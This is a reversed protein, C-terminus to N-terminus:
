IEDNKGDDNGDSEEKDPLVTVTIELIRREAVKTVKVLLKDYTFEDGEEAIKGLKELVWGGVSVSDAEDDDEVEFYELMKDLLTSCLVTVSGDPNPVFEEVVEDYEDWIEGVLEELIDEMTAIGTTGGYEDSIVAMHTKKAQMLKLLESISMQKAVFVTPKIISRITKKNTQLLKNFDRIHIVGVISDVTGDFVPLRSFGSEDFAKGIEELSDSKDVAIMDVRPTLIDGVPCESFSIASRILDSEEEDLGGGEEAEDVINILEDGTITDKNDLRFIKKLMKKWLMFFAVLPTFLLMLFKLFGSAFMAFSEPKEKAVSKPSIEGFILVTVTMVVTSLTTGLSEDRLLDIFLVTAISTSAINVINNGILVTSLLKDYNETLSYARAARRNGEDAMMKLRIKNLSTYATEAASFFGSLVILVILLLLKLWIDTDM